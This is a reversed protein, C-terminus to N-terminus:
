QDHPHQTVNALVYHAAAQSPSQGEEVCLSQHLEAFAKQQKEAAAKETLLSFVEASIMIANAEEQLLEPVVKRNLIINALHVFATKVICKLIRYTLANMKYAIVHPTGAYALELGVTGSVAFAADCATFARWKDQPNTTIHVPVDLGQTLARVKEEVHPLTPVVIHLNPQRAQILKIAEIFLDGHRALEGYRSGFLVGLVPADAPINCDRRFAQGDVGQLNNEVLPHGVFKANLGHVEFYPPEFPFLCMLGDLFKAIKQARKPRWAWVTPAVYHILKGHFVGRKKLRKAVRFNFDPLDITILADPQQVEVETAVQKILGLLRPIHKIVETLGMVCIQDMPLLSQLGESQMQAGGIGVFKIPELSQDKLSRMLAAGLVDGSAEGAILFITKSM